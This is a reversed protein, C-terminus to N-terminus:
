LLARLKTCTMVLGSKNLTNLVQDPTLPPNKLREVQSRFAQLAKEPDLDILISIFQDPHQAEIDFEQLYHAPFDKLNTTVIIDADCRVAAVLVHRDDSDPLSVSAILRAYKIINADPFALNM